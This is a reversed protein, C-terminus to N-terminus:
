NLFIKQNSLFLLKEGQLMKLNKLTQLYLEPTKKNLDEIIWLGTVYLKTM